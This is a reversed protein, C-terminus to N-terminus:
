DFQYNFDGRDPSNYFHYKEISREGANPPKGECRTFVLATLHSIDITGTATKGYAVAVKSNRHTEILQLIYTELTEKSMRFKSNLYLLEKDLFFCYSCALNCTAGSSKALVNIRPPLSTQEM